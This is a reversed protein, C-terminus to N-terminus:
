SKHNRSYYEQKEEELIEKFTDLLDKSGEVKMVPKLNRYIIFINKHGMTTEYFDPFTLQALNKFERKVTNILGSIDDADKLDRYIM